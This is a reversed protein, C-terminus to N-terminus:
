LNFSGMAPITVIVMVLVLMIMMPLLLKTSLEEGRKKLAAKQKTYEEELMAELLSSLNRSGKRYNQILVTTMKKYCPVGCSDGFSRYAEGEGCGDKVRRLMVIIEENVPIDEKIVGAKKRLRYNDAIREFAAMVTMGARTLVALQRLLLIYEEELKLARKEREKKEDYSAGFLIGAAAVVGLLMFIVGTNDKKVSWSLTTGAAKEPLNFEKLVGENEASILANVEKLIEEAHSLEPPYLVVYMSDSVEKEDCKLLAKIETLTGSKSVKEFDICGGPSILTHDFSISVRVLGDCLEEFVSLDKDVYNQSRNGSLLKERWALVAENLKEEKEAESLAKANVSVSYEHDRIEDGANLVLEYDKAKEGPDPKELYTMERNKANEKADYAIGFTFGLAIVLIAPLITKGKKM